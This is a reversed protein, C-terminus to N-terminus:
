VEEFELVRAKAQVYDIWHRGYSPNDPEIDCTPNETANQDLPLVKDMIYLIPEVNFRREYPDQKSTFEEDRALRGRSAIAYLRICEATFRELRVGLDSADYAGEVARIEAGFLPQLMESIEAEFRGGEKFLEVIKLTRDKVEPDVSRGAMIMFGEYPNNATFSALVGPDIPAMKPLAPRVLGFVKDKIDSDKELSRRIDYINRRHDYDKRDYKAKMVVGSGLIGVTGLIWGLQGFADLLDNPEQAEGLDGEVQNLERHLSFWQEDAGLDIADQTTVDGEAYLAELKPFSLDLQGQIDDQNTELEHVVASDVGVHNAAVDATVGAALALGSLGLAFEPGHGRISM